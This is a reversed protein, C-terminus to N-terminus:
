FPGLYWGGYEECLERPYSMIVFAGDPGNALNCASRRFRKGGNEYTGILRVPAEPRLNHSIGGLKRCKARTTVSKRPWGNTEEALVCSVEAITKSEASKAQQRARRKLQEACMNVRMILPKTEGPLHCDVYSDSLPPTPSPAKGSLKRCKEPSVYNLGYVPSYCRIAVNDPAHPHPSGRDAAQMTKPKNRKQPIDAKTSKTTSAALGVVDGNAKICESAAMLVPDAKWRTKCMVVGPGRASQVAALRRSEPKPPFTVETIRVGKQQRCDSKRLTVTYVRGPLRCDIYPDAGAHSVSQLVGGLRECTPQPVRITGQGTVDCEVLETLELAAHRKEHALIAQRFYPPALKRFLAYTMRGTEPWKNKKEFQLVARRTNRGLVGDAKGPNFGAEALLKQVHRIHKKKVVLRTSMMQRAEKIFENVRVAVNIKGTQRRSLLKRGRRRERYKIINGVNVAVVKYGDPEKILMPSGSSGKAADCRHLIVGERKGIRRRMGKHSISSDYWSGLKCAPSILVGDKIKDGHFAAMFLRKERAAKAVQKQSRVALPLGEWCTPAKLKLVMWDKPFASIGRPQVRYGTLIGDEIEESTSGALRSKMFRSKLLFLTQSHDLDKKDRGFLCHAATVITDPAICFATCLSRAKKNYLMGISGLLKRYEAQPSTREDRGLVGSTLKWDKKKSRKTRKERRKRTKPRKAAKRGALEHVAISHLGDNQLRQPLEGASAAVWSLATLCLVASIFPM